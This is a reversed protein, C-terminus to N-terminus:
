KQQGNQHGDSKAATKIRPMSLLQTMSRQMKFCIQNFAEPCNFCVLVGVRCRQEITKECWPVYLNKLTELIHLKEPYFYQPFIAISKKICARSNHFLICDSQILEAIKESTKDRILDINGACIKKVVEIEEDRERNIM